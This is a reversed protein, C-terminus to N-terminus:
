RLFLGLALLLGGILHLRGVLPVARRLASRDALQRATQAALPLVLVTLAAWLPLQGALVAALPWLLGAAVVAVLVRRGGDAGLRIALTRRGRAADGERDRLNNGMLIAAVLFGVSVSAWLGEPTARGTVAVESVLVELPGMVLFVLGEGYPTASVPRPGANYLFGAGIAALGLVLLLPGRILVLVLGLLFALGYTGLAWALVTGATVHGRVIYGAIGTSEPHDVGRRFDAYENTMNTAMQLLVAVVLMIVLPWWAIRALGGASAGVAVPVVSAVLTPPRGLEWLERPSM